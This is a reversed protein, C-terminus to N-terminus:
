GRRRTLRLGYCDRGRFTRPAEFVGVPTRGSLIEPHCAARILAEPVVSLSLGFFGATPGSCVRLSLEDLRRGEDMLLYAIMRSETLEGRSRYLIRKGRFVTLDPGGGIGLDARGEEALGVSPAGRRRRVRVCVSKGEQFREKPFGEFRVFDFYAGQLRGSPTEQTKRPVPQYKLAPVVRQKSDKQSEEAVEWAYELDRIFFDQGVPRLRFVWPLGPLPDQGPKPYLREFRPDTALVANLGPVRCYTYDAQFVGRLGPYADLTLGSILDMKSQFLEAGQMLLLSPDLIDVFRLDPRAHLLYPSADWECNFVKGGGPHKPISRLAEYAPGETEFGMRPAPIQLYLTRGGASILALFGFCWITFGVRRWSLFDIRGVWLVSVPLLYEITRPGIGMGLALVCAVMGLWLGLSSDRSMGGPKESTAEHLHPFRSFARDFRQRLVSLVDVRDLAIVGALLGLFPAIERLYHTSIKPFLEMGFPIAHTVKSSVSLLGASMLAIRIIDFGFLVNAPFYPHIFLGLGLGGLAWRASRHSDECSERPLLLLASIALGAPFHIAHYFLPSLVGFLLASRHGGRVLSVALGSFCFIAGLHPRLMLSRWLYPGWSVCLTSALLFQLVSGGRLGLGLLLVLTGVNFLPATLMFGTEGGLAFLNRTVFHFLYEKEPFFEGWGLDEVQPLSKMVGHWPLMKSLALHYFVDAEHPHFDIKQLWIWWYVSFTVPVWFWGSRWLTWDWLPLARIRDLSALFKLKKM